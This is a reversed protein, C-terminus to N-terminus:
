DNLNLRNKSSIRVMINFVSVAAVAAASRARDETAIAWDEPELVPDVPALPVDPELTPAPLEPAPVEPLPAAAPELPLLVPALPVVEPEDSVLPEALVPADLSGLPLHTAMVPASRSFHRSSWRVPAPAPAVPLPLVDPLLVPPDDPLLVIGAVGAGAGIVGPLEPLELPVVFYYDGL